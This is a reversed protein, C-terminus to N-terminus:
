TTAVGPRGAGPIPPPGAAGAPQAVGLTQHIHAIAAPPLALGQALRALYAREADTDVEIALLSAAYVQAALDPSQAQAVLGDLDLPARMEQLVYDKAEADADSEDLKEFIRDMEGQDITGDAKAASIMARLLILARSALVAEDAPSSAGRVEIPLDAAAPAAPAAGAPQGGQQGTQPSQASQLAAYALSGLLALAGGGVAGGRGGLLAGAVAGLGGVALPNNSRVANSTSAVAGQTAGSLQSLMGQLGGTGSGSSGSSGGLLGGLQDLLGGQGGMGQPGVAREMRAGTSPTGKANLFAGILKQADFM